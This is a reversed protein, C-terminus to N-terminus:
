RGRRQHQAGAERQGGGGDDHLEQGFVATEAARRPAGAEGDQQELIERHQRYEEDEARERCKAAGAVGVGLARHSQGEGQRETLRRDGRHCDHHDASQDDTRQEAEDARRAAGVHEQGRHQQHDDAGRDGGLGGTQRHRKARKEGAQHQRLGLIAVLDADIDLRELAQEDAQEEDRDAHRDIDEHDRRSRPPQDGRHKPRNANLPTIM